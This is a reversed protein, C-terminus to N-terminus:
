CLDSEEFVFVKVFVVCCEVFCVWVKLFVVDVVIM